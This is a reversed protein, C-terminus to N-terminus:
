KKDGEIKNSIVEFTAKLLTELYEQNIDRKIQSNTQYHSKLSNLMYVMEKDTLENERQTKWCAKALNSFGRM